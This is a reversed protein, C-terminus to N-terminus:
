LRLLSTLFGSGPFQTVKRLAKLCRFHCCNAGHTPRLSLMMITGKTQLTTWLYCWRFWFKLLHKQCFDGCEAEFRWPIYFTPELSCWSMIFWFSLMGQGRYQYQLLGPLGFFCPFQFFFDSFYELTLYLDVRIEMLTLSMMRFNIRVCLLGQSALSIRLLLLM